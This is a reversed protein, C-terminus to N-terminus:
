IYLLAGGAASGRVPRRDAGIVRGDRVRRHIKWRAASQVNGLATNQLQAPLQLEYVGFMSMALIVFVLAFSGLVWPNQLAASLMAGSLGAAVGAIAYTVAMGLVYATSLAFGHM